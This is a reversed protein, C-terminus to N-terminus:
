VVLAQGQVPSGCLLVATSVQESMVTVECLSCSHPYIPPATGHFDLAEKKSPTSAAPQSSRRPFSERQVGRTKLHLDDPSAARYDASELEFLHTRESGAASSFSTRDQSCVPSAGGKKGHESSGPQHHYDVVYSSSSASSLPPGTKTSSCTTSNGWHDLDPLLPSPKVQSRLHQLSQSCPRNWDGTFPRVAPKCASSHPYASSSASLAFPEVADRKEKLQKLVQPLSEVTLVDEPLKALLALDAPELGCSSLINLASDQSWQARSYSPYSPSSHQPAQQHESSTHHPDSSGCPEPEPRLDSRPRRRPYNNSM